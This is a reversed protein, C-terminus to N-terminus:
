PLDNPRESVVASERAGILAAIQARSEVRMKHLVRETHRRATHESIGLTRAVERNPCGRGLLSAVQAERLTLRWKRRLLTLDAVRQSATASVVCLRGSTLETAHWITVNLTYSGGVARWSLSRPARGTTQRRRGAAQSGLQSALRRVVGLIEDARDGRELLSAFSRNVHLVRGALDVLALPWDLADIMRKSVNARAATRAIGELGPELLTLLLSTKGEPALRDWLAQASIPGDAALAAEEDTRGATAASEVRRVGRAAQTVASYWDDSREHEWPTLLTHLVAQLEEVDTSSLVVTM